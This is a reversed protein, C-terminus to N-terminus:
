FKFNYTVSPIIPFMVMKYTNIKQPNNKDTEFYVSYANGRNYANYVAFNWEGQWKRNPKYKSRVTLSLDLRHYDPLRWSNKTGPEYYPLNSNGYVFRMAPYTIPTGSYYVWSATFDTRTSVKYTLVVNLNNPHDYNANYSKGSNIDSFTRVAKSLTYSVWGTLNGSNKKLFLEVGYSKAKGFRLEKELQDNLLLDANDKFDIQNKMWKYFGEVSFEYQNDKFNRFYGIGVQDSVQPKVYESAPFWIDLPSGASSNSALQLYQRTRSYAAKVSSYDNLRYNASLRPEIGYYSNYFNNRSHHITDTVVYGNAKDISYVTAPGFNHFSSLRVGYNITLQDGIRHENSLYAANELARKNSSKFTSSNGDTSVRGPEIYHLTSSLGFKVTTSASQYFTFDYKLGVDQLNSKWKFTPKTDSNELNYQYNSYIFTLNSFLRSSFTHNWRTTITANGWNIFFSNSYGAVDRGFYASVFIRNNENIAYNGKVNVDYFYLRNKRISSDSAFALFMDAYTRRASVIFSGKGKNIPGEATLRSSILGIGGSLHYEKSNGDKMRIDLLSSLRGGYAAPIDGKYLTADKIADTNFVSFFGMLHSANYVPAEDLLILNQDASGGRVTFGSSGEVPAQVGPMLQISKMIDSEGMLVPLSSLKKSDIKSVGMQTRSVNEDKKVSTIVVSEMQISESELEVDMRINAKLSVPLSQKQYGVYTYDLTYEGKPLSLSYFGYTNTTVGNKQGKVYVTAGILTEGTKKDKLYGSVTLREQGQAVGAFNLCTALILLTILHKM